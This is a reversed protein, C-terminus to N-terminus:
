VYYSIIINYYGAWIGDEVVVRCYYYLLTLATIHHLAREIELSYYISRRLIVIIITQRTAPLLSLIM